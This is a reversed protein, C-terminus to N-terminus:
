GLIRLPGDVEPEEDVNGWGMRDEM